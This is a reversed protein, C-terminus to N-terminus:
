GGGRRMSRAERMAREEEHRMRRQERAEQRDVYGRFYSVGEEISDMRRAMHHLDSQMATYGERLGAVDLQLTAFSQLFTAGYPTQGTSCSGGIDFHDYPHSQSPPPPPQITSPDSAPSAEQAKENGEHGEDGKDFEGEEEQAEEEQEPPLVRERIIVRDCNWNRKNAIATRTVAPFTFLTEKHHPYRITGGRTDLISMHALSAIDLVGGLFHSELSHFKNNHGLSEAIATITAGVSIVNEHTTKAMEILHRLIFAGIDVHTGSL